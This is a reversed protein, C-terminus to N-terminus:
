IAGREHKKRRLNEPTLYDRDRRRAAGGEVLQLNSRQLNCPNGDAFRVKQKEGADLLVRSVTVRGGPARHAAATPHGSPSVHWNPSLGLKVLFQFDEADISAVGKSGSPGLPIAVVSSENM